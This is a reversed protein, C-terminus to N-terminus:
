FAAELVENFSGCVNCKIVINRIQGAAMGEALHAGCTGCGLAVDSEHGRFLVSGETTKEFVSRTNPDPEPIVPLRVVRSVQVIRRDRTRPGHCEEFLKGSGCPCRENGKIKAV